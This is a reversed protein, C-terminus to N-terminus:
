FSTSRRPATDLAAPRRGSAGVMAFNPFWEAPDQLLALCHDFDEEPFGGALMAQRVQM